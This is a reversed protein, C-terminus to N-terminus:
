LTNKTNQRNGINIDRFLKEAYDNPVYFIEEKMFKDMGLHYLRQLRDQLSEYSEGIKYQFEVEDHEDKGDEDALKCIFLAILRNFANEKDSVANHRLIEEFKNILKDNPDFEKLDRKRLPANDLDYAKANEGFLLHSLLLANYSEKWVQHLEEAKTANKYLAISEDKKAQKELNEDDKCRLVATKFSVKDSEFDSAYLALCQTSSDQQWYSFLQGGDEDLIKLAKDYEKGATKCEIISFIKGEEDPHYITIDARGSKQSHGLSWRKELEIDKAHYGKELLRHVCEFVVFNEPASFNTTQNENIKLKPPYILKENTFDVTLTNNNITKTYIEPQSAPEATFGLSTLLQAFNDKTIM